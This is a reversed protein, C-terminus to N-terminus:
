ADELRILADVAVTGSPGAIVPNVDLELLRSAEAEAYRAIAGIADLLADMDAGPRGRFGRLLAGIRLGLLADHVQDRPAPLVLTISDRLIEAQVGGAGLTLSLLGTADRTVGVLLETGPEVM